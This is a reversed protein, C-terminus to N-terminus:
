ALRGGGIARSAVARWGLGLAGLVALAALCYVQVPDILRDGHDDRLFQLLMRAAAYGAVGFMLIRAPRRPDLRALAVAGALGLLVHLLQVPHVPLSTAETATIWGRHFHASWADTGAPFRVAWVWDTPRGFEEGNVFCGLRAVGYGLAVAPAWCGLVGLASVGFLRASLVGALGAGVFAGLTSLPLSGVRILMAPDTRLAGPDTHLLSYIHGGLFAAALGLGAAALTPGMGIGWARSRWLMAVLTAAIGALWLVPPSVPALGGCWDCVLSAEGM